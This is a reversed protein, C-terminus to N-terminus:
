LFILSLGDCKLCTQRFFLLCVKKVMQVTARFLLCLLIANCVLSGKESEIHLNYSEKEIGIENGQHETRRLAGM